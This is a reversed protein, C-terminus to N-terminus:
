KFIRSFRNICMQIWEMYSAKTLPVFLRAFEAQHDGGWRMSHSNSNEPPLEAVRLDGFNRVGIYCHGSNSNFFEFAGEGFKGLNAPPAYYQSFIFGGREHTPDAQLVFLGDPFFAIRCKKTKLGTWDSSLWPEYGERLEVLGSSALRHFYGDLKAELAVIDTQREPNPLFMVDLRPKGEWNSRSLKEIAAECRAKFEETSIAGEVIELEHLAKVLGDKLEGPTAFKGRFLGSHFDEVEQRFSTQKGETPSNQVFSLIPKNADRAARFEVHTVSLGAETEFGYKEGMVLLYVDAKEVETTCAIESSYPRAGLQESMIPKHGMLEIAEKAAQRYEAFGAIMSSIFVRKM